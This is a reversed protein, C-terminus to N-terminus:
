VDPIKTFCIFFTVIFDKLLKGINQDLFGTFATVFVIKFNFNITINISQIGCGNIKTQANEPPSLESLVLSPYFKM